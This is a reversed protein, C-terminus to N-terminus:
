IQYDYLIPCGVMKVMLEDEAAAKMSCNCIHTIVPLSQVTQM